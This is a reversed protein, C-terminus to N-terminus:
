TNSRDIKDVVQLALNGKSQGLRADLMPVGNASVMFKEPMDVPIVDGEQLELIDRLTIEKEVLTCDLNVTASMIEERLSTLWREDM